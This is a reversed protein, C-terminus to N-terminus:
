RNEPTSCSGNCPAGGSTMLAFGREGQPEKTKHLAEHLSPARVALM